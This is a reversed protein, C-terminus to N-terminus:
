LVGCLADLAATVPGRLHVRLVRRQRRTLVDFDGAAQATILQQFSYGQGPVPLDQEPESTLQVFVGSNPGGKHLQGSSHLYRPGYALCTVIGFREQLRRRVVSLRSDVPPSPPLYALIALYDGPRLEAALKKLPGDADGSTGLYRKDGFWESASDKYLTLSDTAVTGTELAELSRKTALKADAVDPEDFPNIGLRYAAVATAFEWRFFEGGLETMDNILWHVVPHGLERLHDLDRTTETGQEAVTSISVFVQDDHGPGPIPNDVPVIGLGQKGTSEAVLQEIWAGLPALRPSLMLTLKDRGQLALDGLMAGLHVATNDAPDASPKTGDAADVANRVLAELDIGLLAAPVMGFYTLASYRGGVDAPALFCDRFKRQRASQQLPTGADTIAVFHEGPSSKEAQLRGYFYEFLSITETTTGSKSSVVFLTNTLPVNKEVAHIADPATTDLVKLEIFGPASGLTKTLVEPALSSGGMGLLVAHTFGKDRVRTTFQKLREIDSRAWNAADLWGLRNRIDVQVDTRSSWLSADKRWIRESIQVVSQADMPEVAAARTEIRVIFTREHALLKNLVCQSTM